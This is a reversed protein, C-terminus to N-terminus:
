RADPLASTADAGVEAVTLTTTIDTLAKARTTEHGKTHSRLVALGFPVQKSLLCEFEGSWAWKGGGRLPSEPLESKGTVSECQLRGLKTDATKAPEVRTEALPRPFVSRLRDLEYQRRAYDAGAIKESPEIKEMKIERLSDGQSYYMELLHAFPDDGRKLNAEPVLIKLVRSAKKDAGAPGLEFAIEIWRCPKGDVERRGVSSLRLSGDLTMKNAPQKGDAQIAADMKVDYRVWSGDPPLQYVLGDARVSATIALGFVCTLMIPVAAALSSRKHM